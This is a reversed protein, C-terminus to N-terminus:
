EEVFEMNEVIEMIEEKTLEDNHILLSYRFGEEDWVLSKIIDDMFVAEKGRVEIEEEKGLGTTLGEGEPSEFSTLTFQLRGEKKFEQNVETRDFSDLHFQEVSDLQYANSTLIPQGTAAVVEALTTEETQDMEEFPKVEVGEPLDMTFSNEDFSPNIELDHVVYNVTIDETTSVSKVVFWHDTTIWYEEVGQMMAEKKPTAKLHYTDFGNIEENGILEIEHTERALELGDEVQERTKQGVLSEGGIDSSEIEFAAQQISSYLITKEGDDLTMTTDGNSTESIIKSQNSENDLWQELTSDDIKEEGKFVEFDAQMYYGNVDSDNEVAKTVIQDPLYQAMEGASCAVLMFGLCIVTLMNCINKM